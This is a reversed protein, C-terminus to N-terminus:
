AVVRAGDYVAAREAPISVGAALRWALSCRWCRGYRPEGIADGCSFCQAKVYPVGAQFVLAPLVVDAPADGILHTFRAVRAQVGEDCIQVLTVLANRHQQILQEHEATLREVPWVRLRGSVVALDLGAHELGCLVVMAPSDLVDTTPPKSSVSHRM